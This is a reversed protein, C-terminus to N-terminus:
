VALGFLLVLVASAAVALHMLWHTRRRPAPPPTPQWAQTPLEAFPRERQPIQNVPAPYRRVPRSGGPTQKM